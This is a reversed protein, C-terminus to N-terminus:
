VLVRFSSTPLLLLLLPLSRACFHPFTVDGGQEAEEGLITSRISLSDHIYNITVCTAIYCIIYESFMEIHRMLLVFYIAAFLQPLIFVLDPLTMPVRESLESPFSNCWPKELM